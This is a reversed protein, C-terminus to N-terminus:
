AHTAHDPELSANFPIHGEGCGVARRLGEREIREWEIEGSHLLQHSHPRVKRWRKPLFSGM